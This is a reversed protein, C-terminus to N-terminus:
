LDQLRKKQDEFPKVGKGSKFAKRLAALRAKRKEEKLARAVAGTQPTTTGGPDGHPM